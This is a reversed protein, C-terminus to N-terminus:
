DTESLESEPPMGQFRQHQNSKYHQHQSHKGEKHGEWMGFMVADADTVGM